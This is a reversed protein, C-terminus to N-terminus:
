VRKEYSYELDEEVEKFWFIAGGISVAVKTVTVTQSSAAGSVPPVSSTYIRASSVAGSPGAAGGGNNGTANDCVTETKPNNYWDKQSGCTSTTDACNWYGGTYVSRCNTQYTWSFSPWGTNGTGGAMSLTGSTGSYNEALILVYGAGSGGQNNNYTVGNNGGWTGTGNYGSSIIQGNNVFKKAMIKMANAGYNTGWSSAYNAGNASAPLVDQPSALTYAAGTGATDSSILQASKIVGNNTLTGSVRLDTTRSLTITVGSNITLDGYYYSTNASFDTNTSITVSNTATGFNVVQNAYIM